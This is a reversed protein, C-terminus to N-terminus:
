GVAIRRVMALEPALEMAMSSPTVPDTSLMEVAQAEPVWAMPRAKWITREPIAGAAMAPPYSAASVKPKRRAHSEMRTTEGVAQRGKEASRSPMVSPSPAAM